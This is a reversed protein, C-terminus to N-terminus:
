PPQGDREPLERRDWNLEKVVQVITGIGVWLFAVIFPLMLLHRIIKDKEGIFLTLVFTIALGAGFILLFISGLLTLITAYPRPKRQSPIAYDLKIREGAPM